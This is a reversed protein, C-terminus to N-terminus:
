LVYDGDLFVTHFLHPMLRHSTGGLCMSQSGRHLIQECCVPECEPLDPLTSFSEFDRPGDISLRSASISVSVIRILRKSALRRDALAGGIERVMEPRWIKRSGFFGPGRHGMILNAMVFGGRKSLTRLYPKQDTTKSVQRTTIRVLSLSVIFNSRRAPSSATRSRFPRLISRTWALPL